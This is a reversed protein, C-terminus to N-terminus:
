HLLGSLLNEGKGKQRKLTKHLRILKKSIM